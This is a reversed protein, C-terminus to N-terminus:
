KCKSHPNKYVFELPMWDSLRKNDTEAVSAHPNLSSRALAVGLNVKGNLCHAELYDSLGKKAADLYDGRITGNEGRIDVANGILLEDVPDKGAGTVIMHMVLLARSELADPNATYSIPPINIGTPGPKAAKTDFALRYPEGKWKPGVPIGAGKDQSGCGALLLLGGVALIMGKRM